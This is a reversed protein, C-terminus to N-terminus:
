HKPRAAVELTWGRLDVGRVCMRNLSKSEKDKQVVNVTEVTHVKVSEVVQVQPIAQVIAHFRSVAVHM